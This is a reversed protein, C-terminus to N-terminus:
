DNAETCTARCKWRRPEPRLAHRGRPGPLPRTPDFLLAGAEVMVAARLRLRRPPEVGADALAARLRTWRTGSVLPWHCCWEACCYAIGARLTWTVRLLDGGLSGEVQHEAPVCKGPREPHPARNGSPLARLAPGADVPMRSPGACPGRRRRPPRSLGGESTMLASRAGPRVEDSM